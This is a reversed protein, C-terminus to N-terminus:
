SPAAPTPKTRAFSSQNGSRDCLKQNVELYHGDRDSHTIGVAAQNFTAHYRSQMGAVKSAALRQRALALMLLAAVGAIVM